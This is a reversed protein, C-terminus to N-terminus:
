PFTGRYGGTVCPERINLIESVFTAISLSTADEFCTAHYLTIIRSMYISGYLELAATLLYFSGMVQLVSGLILTPHPGLQFVNSFLQAPEPVM